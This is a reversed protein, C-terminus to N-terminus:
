SPPSIPSLYIKGESKTGSGAAGVLYVYSTMLCWAYIKIGLEERFEKLTELYAVRDRDTVFVVRRNHGRQVIHHPLDPISLRCRPM